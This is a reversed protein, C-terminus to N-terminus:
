WDGSHRGACTGTCPDEIIEAVIGRVQEIDNDGDFLRHRRPSCIGLLAQARNAIQRVQGDTGKAHEVQVEQGDEIRDFLSVDIVFRDGEDLCVHGAFCGVTGCVPAWRKAGETQVVGKGWTGQDWEPEPARAEREAWDLASLLRNVDTIM